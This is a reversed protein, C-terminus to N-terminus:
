LGVYKSYLTRAVTEDTTGKIIARADSFVNLEYADIVVRLMFANVTVEGVSRLSEALQSLDLKHEGHRVIQIADRGCLSTTRSTSDAELYTFERGVCVPCDAVREVRSRHMEGDWVDVQLLGDNLDDLKGTLLKIAETVQLSALTVVTPGLIGATDCTEFSGPPAQPFLCRLCPGAEPLINMTVGFTGIVAGYIWPVGHKLCVDNILYRGEFNDIADVVLDCGGLLQEANASNLDVVHPEIAVQSNIRGLKQAAAVAKPLGERVDQEDYLLQRQLNNLEVFDRDLLRVYGVGARVLLSAAASGLAGCGAVVVRSECLKRQGAEGIQYHVIQRAYRALDM